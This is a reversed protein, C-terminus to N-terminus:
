SSLANARQKKNSAFRFSTLSKWFWEVPGQKHRALWYGSIKLQIFFILITLGINLAPSTEEFLGFGFRYFILLGFFTQLLYNTLAMRGMAALPKLFRRYFHRKYLLVIGSIFFTTLCANYISFLFSATWQFEPAIELQPLSVLDFLYLLLALLLLSLVANKSFRNWSRWKKNQQQVAHFLQMKGAWFGLLFYGFTMLLRGSKLQYIIKADWSHWNAAMTTSLDANKVLAYYKQAEAAMPFDVQADQVSGYFLEYLHTPLNIVLIIGLFLFLGPSLKRIILLLAGLFAYIALIDGRWFSHHVLGILFLLLLRWLYTRIFGSKEKQKQFHLFFSLGFLFSFVSFFKGFVFGGFVAMSLNDAFSSFQFYVDQPLAAGTYWFIMHAYLIGALAFGRLVDVIEIREQQKGTEKERM